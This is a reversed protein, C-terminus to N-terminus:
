PSTTTRTLGCNSTPRSRSLRVPTTVEGCSRRRSSRSTAWTAVSRWRCRWPAVALGMAPPSPLRSNRKQSAGLGTGPAETVDTSSMSSATSRSPTGHRAADQEHGVRPAGLRQRDGLADHLAEGMETDVHGELGVLGLGEVELVARAHVDRRGLLLDRLPAVEDHHEAAVPGDQAAGLEGAADVHREEPDVEAVHAKKRLGLAVVEVGRDLVDRAVVVGDLLAHREVDVRLQVAVEDRAAPGEVLDADLLGGALPHELDGDLGVPDVAYAKEAPPGTTQGCTSAMSRTGLAAWASKARGSTSPGSVWRATSILAAVSPAPTM